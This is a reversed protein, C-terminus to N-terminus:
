LRRSCTAAHAEVARYAAAAQPETVELARTFLLQYMSRPPEPLTFAAPRRLPGVICRAFLLAASYAGYPGPHHSDRGFIAARPDQRILDTWVDDVAVRPAGLRDAIRTMRERLRRRAEVDWDLSMITFLLPQAGTKEIRPVLRDLSQEMADPYDYSRESQEQLVVYDWRRDLLAQTGADNWHWELTVGPFARQITCVSRGTTLLNAVRQTNAPIDHVFTLSNGIFLVRVCDPPPAPEPELEPVLFGPPPVLLLAIAALELALVLLLVRKL